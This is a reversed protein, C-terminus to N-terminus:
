PTIRGLLGGSVNRLTARHYESIALLVAGYVAAGVAVLAVVYLWSRVPVVRRLGWVVGAMVGGSVFQHLLPRPFITVTPVEVRVAYVSLVYTVFQAITSGVVVGIPGMVFFLGVSGVVNTVFKVLSIRFSTHPKDLGDIASIFVRGQTILLRYLAILVLFAAAGAYKPEYATVLIERGLILAGFFLPVALVSSYSAAHRLREAVAEGRSHLDSVDGYTGNSILQTVFIAPASIRLAVNYYGVFVSTALIGILITDIRGLMTNLMSQPLKPKAFTWIRRVTARTPVRPRVGVLRFPLPAVVILALATGAVLGGAEYGLVVLGIQGVYKLVTKLLDIWSHYGFNPRVSLIMGTQQTLNLGVFLLALVPWHQGLGDVPISGTAFEGAVAIVAVGVVTFLGLGLAYAGMIEGELADSETIRKRCGEVWGGFPNNLTDAVGYIFFYLGYVDPTTMRAIVVTGVLGLAATLLRGVFGFGVQEGFDTRDSM